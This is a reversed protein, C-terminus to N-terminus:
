SHKSSKCPLSNLEWCWCQTDWLQRLSWSRSIWDGWQNGCVGTCMHWITICACGHVFKMKFLMVRPQSNSSPMLLLAYLTLNNCETSVTVRHFPLAPSLQSSDFWKNFDYLYQSMLRYYLDKRFISFGIVLYWNAKIIQTIQFIQTVSLLSNRGSSLLKKVTLHPLRTNQTRWSHKQIKDQDDGM